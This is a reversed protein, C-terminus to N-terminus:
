SQKKFALRCQPGGYMVSLGVYRVATLTHRFVRCCTYIIRPVVESIVAADGLFLDMVQNCGFRQPLVCVAMGIDYKHSHSPRQKSSSRVECLSGVAARKDSCSLGSTFHPLPPVGWTPHLSLIPLSAPYVCATNYTMSHQTHVM